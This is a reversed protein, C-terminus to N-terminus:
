YEWSNPAEWAPNFLTCVFVNSILSQELVVILLFQKIIGTIFYPLCFNNEQVKIEQKPQKKQVWKM